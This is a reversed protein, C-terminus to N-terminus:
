YLRESASKGERNIKIPGRKVRGTPSSSGRSQVQKSHYFKREPVMAPGLRLRRDVHAHRKVRGRRGGEEM